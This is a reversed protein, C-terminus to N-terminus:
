QRLKRAAREEARRARKSAHNIEQIWEIICPSFKSRHSPSFSVFNVNAIALLYPVFLLLIAGKLIHKLSWLLLRMQFEILDDVFRLLLYLRVEPGLNKSKLTLLLSLSALFM